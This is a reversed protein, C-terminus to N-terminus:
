ESFHKPQLVHMCARSTKNLYYYDVGAFGSVRLYDEATVLPARASQTHCKPINAETKQGISFRYLIIQQDFSIGSM